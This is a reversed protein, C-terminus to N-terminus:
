SVPSRLIYQASHCYSFGALLGIGARVAEFGHRSDSGLLAPIRIRSTAMEPVRTCTRIMEM